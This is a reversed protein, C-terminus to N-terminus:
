EDALPVMSTDNGRPCNESDTIANDPNRYKGIDYPALDNPLRSPPTRLTWAVLRKM